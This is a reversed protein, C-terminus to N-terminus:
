LRTYSRFTEYVRLDQKLTRKPSDRLSQESVEVLSRQFRILYNCSVAFEFASQLEDGVLFDDKCLV